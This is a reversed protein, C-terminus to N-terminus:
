LVPQVSRTLVVQWWKEAPVVIGFALVRVNSQHREVFRVVIRPINRFKLRACWSEFPPVM